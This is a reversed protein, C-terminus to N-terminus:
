WCTSARLALATSRLAAAARTCTELYAPMYEHTQEIFEFGAQLFRVALQSVFDFADDCARGPEVGGRELIKFRGKEGGIEAHLHGRLNDRGYFFAVFGLAGAASINEGGRGGFNFFAEGGIM